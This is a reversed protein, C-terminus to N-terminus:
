FWAGRATLVDRLIDARDTVIGDVGLDLLANMRSAENVTWVHVQLGAAHADAVVAATAVDIFRFREPVQLCDIRRLGARLVPTLRLASAARFMAVTHLGASTAVPATLRRLVARRRADSFSAVCVRQHSRTREIARALPGVAPDSKVDLNLRLDPWTGLLEEVTPIPERGGILARHVRSWPQEAVAGTGDTVRDLTADHFAVAVGDLTARVDTEVYRYGLDVAAAVATMSNELGDTSFGRHAMALPGPHDFFPHTPPM